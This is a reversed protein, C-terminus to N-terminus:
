LTLLHGLFANTFNVAIWQRLIKRDFFHFRSEQLSFLAIGTLLLDNRATYKFMIKMLTKAVDDPKDNVNLRESLANFRRM